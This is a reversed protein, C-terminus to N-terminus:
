FCSSHTVNGTDPPRISPLMPWYHTRQSQMERLHMRLPHHKCIVAARGTTGMVAPGAAHGALRPLQLAAGSPRRGRTPLVSLLDM